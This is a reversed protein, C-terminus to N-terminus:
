VGVSKSCAGRFDNLTDIVCVTSHLLGLRLADFTHQTLEPEFRRSIVDPAASLAATRDAARTGSARRRALTPAGACEGTAGIQVPRTVPRLRGPELPRRRGARLGDRAHYSRISTLLTGALRRANDPNSLKYSKTCARSSPRSRSRKRCSRSRVPIKACPNLIRSAAGGRMCPRRQGMSAVIYRRLSLVRRATSSVMPRTPSFISLGRSTPKHLRSYTLSRSTSDNESAITV